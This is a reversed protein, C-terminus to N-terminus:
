TLVFAQTHTTHRNSTQRSEWSECHAQAVCVEGRLALLPAPLLLLLLLAATLALETAAAAAAPLRQLRLSKSIPRGRPRPLNPVDQSTASPASAARGHYAELKMAGRQCEAVM